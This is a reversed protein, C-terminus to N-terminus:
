GGIIVAVKGALDTYTPAVLTNEREGPGSLMTDGKGMEDLQIHTVNMVALEKGVDPLPSSAETQLGVSESFRCRDSKIAYSYSADQDDYLVYATGYEPLFPM